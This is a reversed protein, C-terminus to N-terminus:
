TDGENDAFIELAGNLANFVAPMGSYLKTRSVTARIEEGAFGLLVHEYRGSLAGVMGPGTEGLSAAGKVYADNTPM